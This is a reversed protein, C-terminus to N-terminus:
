LQILGNNIYLDIIFPNERELKTLKYQFLDIIDQETRKLYFEHENENTEWTPVICCLASVDITKCNESLPDQDEPIAIAKICLGDFKISDIKLHTM